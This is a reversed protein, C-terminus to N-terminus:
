IRVQSLPGMQRVVAQQSHRAQGASNLRGQELSLPEESASQVRNRGARKAQYLATDAAALLIELETGAPGGAVGISVTTEVAADDVMIGSTAFAERVREAARGNLHQSIVVTVRPIRAESEERTPEDQAFVQAYEEPTLDTSRQPEAAPAHNDPQGDPRQSKPPLRVPRVAGGTQKDRVSTLFLHSIESISRHKETHDSM